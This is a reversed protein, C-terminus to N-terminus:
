HSWIGCNNRQLIANIGTFPQYRNNSGSMHQAADGHDGARNDRWPSVGDPGYVTVCGAEQGMELSYMLLIAPRAGITALLSSHLCRM